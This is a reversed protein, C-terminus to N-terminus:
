AFSYTESTPYQHTVTGSGSKILATALGHAALNTLTLGTAVSVSGNGGADRHVGRASASEISGGAHDVLSNVGEANAEILLAELSGASKRYIPVAQNALGPRAVDARVRALRGTGDDQVLVRPTNGGDTDTYQLAVSLSNYGTGAVIAVRPATISPLTRVKYGEISLSDFSANVYFDALGLADALVAVDTDLVRVSGINGGGPHPNDGAPYSSAQFNDALLFYTRCTGRTGSILLGDILRDSSLVRFGAASGDLYNNLYRINTLDGPRAFPYPLRAANGDNGNSAFSDDGSTVRNRGFVLDDAPGNLHFGDRGDSQTVGSFALTNREFRGRRINALAVLYSLSDYAQCDAIRLGDVGWFRFAWHGGAAAGALGTLGSDAAGPAAGGHVTLGEIAINAQAWGGLAVPATAGVVPFVPSGGSLGLVPSANYVCPGAWAQPRRFGCGPHLGRVVVNSGYIPLVGTLARDVLIGVNGSAFSTSMVSALKASRDAGEATGSGFALSTDSPASLGFEPGSLAVWSAPEPPYSAM